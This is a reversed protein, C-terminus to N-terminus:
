IFSSIAEQEPPSVMNCCVDTRQLANHSSFKMAASLHLVCAKCRPVTIQFHLLVPSQLILWPQAYQCSNLDGEPVVLQHLAAACAGMYLM